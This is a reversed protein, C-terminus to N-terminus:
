DHLGEAVTQCAGHVVHPSQTWSLHRPIHVSGRRCWLNAGIYINFRSASMCKKPLVVFRFELGRGAISKTVRKRSTDLCQPSGNLVLHEVPISGGDNTRYDDINDRFFSFLAQCPKEADEVKMATSIEDIMTRVREQTSLTSLPDNCAWYQRYIGRFLQDCLWCGDEAARHIGVITHDLDYEFEGFNSISITFIKKCSSCLM